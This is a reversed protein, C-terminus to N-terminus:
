LLHGITGRPHWAMMWSRGVFRLEQAGVTLFAPVNAVSQVMITAVCNMDGFGLVTSDKGVNCLIGNTDEASAATIAAMLSIAAKWFGAGAAGKAWWWSDARCWNALM